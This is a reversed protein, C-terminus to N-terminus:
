NRVQQSNSIDNVSHKIDQELLHNLVEVIQQNLIRQQQNIEQQNQNTETINEFNVRNNEITLDLLNSTNFCVFVLVIILFFVVLFFVIGFIVKSDVENELEEIREWIMEEEKM